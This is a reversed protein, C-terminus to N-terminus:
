AAVERSPESTVWRWAAGDALEAETWHCWSLRTFVEVPDARWAWGTAVDRLFPSALEHALFSPAQYVVPVGLRLAETGVASGWVVVSRACLLSAVLPGTDLYADRVELSTLRGQRAPHPRYRLDWPGLDRLAALVDVPWTPPMALDSYAAPRQGVVLVYDGDRRPEAVPAWDRGHLRSGDGLPWWGRGNIGDRGVYYAGALHGNELAVHVGGRDRVRRATRARHGYCNWTVVADAVDESM